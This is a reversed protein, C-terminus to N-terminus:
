AATKGGEVVISQGILFPVECELFVIADAIEEIAIFASQTNGLGLRAADHDGERTARANKRFAMPDHAIRGCASFAHVPM